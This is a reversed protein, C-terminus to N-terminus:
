KINKKDIKQPRYCEDREAVFGKFLEARERRINNYARAYLDVIYLQIRVAHHGASRPFATGDVM